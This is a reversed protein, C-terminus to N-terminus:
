SLREKLREKVRKMVEKELDGKYARKSIKKLERRKDFDDKLEGIAIREDEVFEQTILKENKLKKDGRELEEKSAGLERILKSKPKKSM